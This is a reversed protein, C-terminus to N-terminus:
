IAVFGANETEIIVLVYRQASSRADFNEDVVSRYVLMRSICCLWLCGVLQVTKTPTM